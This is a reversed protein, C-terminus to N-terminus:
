FPLQDDDVPYFDNGKSQPETPMEPPEYSDRYDTSEKKSDAFYVENTVVDTAYRKKGDEGDWSRTQISGVVAVQQGKRFWKSCFEATARWAVINIFGAQQQGEKAFRRNVALTFNCVATNNTTTRLEPDKTLRGILIVHNM